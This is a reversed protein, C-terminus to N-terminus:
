KRVEPNESTALARQVASRVRRRAADLRDRQALQLAGDSALFSGLGLPSLGIDSLVGFKHHYAIAMQPVGEIVAMLAAHLRGTIAARASAIVQQAHTPSVPVVIDPFYRAWFSEDSGGQGSEFSLFTISDGAALTQAAQVVRAGYKDQAGADLWHSRPRPMSVVVGSREARTRTPENLLALDSAVSFGSLGARRAWRLDAECRVTAGRSITKGAIRALNRSQLSPFPGLGLGVALVSRRLLRLRLAWRMMSYTGQDAALWGGGALWIAQWAATQRRFERLEELQPSRLDPWRVIPIDGSWPATAGPELLLGISHEPLARTLSQVLWDDGVNGMGAWAVALIRM